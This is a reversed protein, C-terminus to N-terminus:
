CKGLEEGDENVLTVSKVKKYFYINITPSCLCMAEVIGEKERAEIYVNMNRDTSVKTLEIEHGCM